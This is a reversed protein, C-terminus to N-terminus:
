KGKVVNNDILFEDFFTKLRENIDDTMKYFVGNIAIDQNPGFSLSMLEKNGKEYLRFSGSGAWPNPKIKRYTTARLSQIFHNIEIKNETEYLLGSGGHRYQIKVVDGSAIEDFSLSSSPMQFKYLLVLGVVLVLIVSALIPKRM